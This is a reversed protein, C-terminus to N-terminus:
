FQSESESESENRVMHDDRSDAAKLMRSLRAQRNDNNM